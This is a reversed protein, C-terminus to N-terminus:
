KWATPYASPLPKLGPVPTKAAGSIPLTAAVAFTPRAAESPTNDTGWPQVEAAGAKLWAAEAIGPALPSPAVGGGTV